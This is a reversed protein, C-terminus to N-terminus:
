LIGEGWGEGAEPPPFDLLATERTTPSFLIALRTDHKGNWGYKIYFVPQFKEFPMVLIM